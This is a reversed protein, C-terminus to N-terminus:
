GGFLPAIERKWRDNIADLNLDPDSTQAKELEQITMPYPVKEKSPPPSKSNTPPSGIDGCYAALVKPSLFFNIFKFALAKSNPGGKVAMISEPAVFLPADAVPVFQVNPVNDKLLVSSTTATAYAVGVEGTTLLRVAEGTTGYIVQVNPAIKKATEFGADLKTKDGTKAMAAQSLFAATNWVPTPLALKKKLSPDAMWGFNPKAPVKVIDTRFVLGVKQAGYNVWEAKGNMMGIMAKPFNALEPVDKETMPEAAGEKAVGYASTPTTLYVDITPNGKEAIIKTMTDAASRQRHIVIEVDNAAEFPKVVNKDLSDGWVGGWVAVVLKDKANAVGAFAAVLVASLLWTTLSKMRLM